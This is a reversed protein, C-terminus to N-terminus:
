VEGYQNVLHDCFIVLQDDIESPELERIITTCGKFLQETEIAHTIAARTANSFFTNAWHLQNGEFFIEGDGCVIKIYIPSNM